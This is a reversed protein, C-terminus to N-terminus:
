SGTSLRAQRLIERLKPRTGTLLLGVRFLRAGFRLALWTSVLLVVYSGAVDLWVGPTPEMTMRFVATVPATFPIWTLIRPLTGNPDTIFIAMFVMPIVTPLSWIMAFQQSERANSGLSGTGLMLSGIFLYGSLFFLLGVAMAAWPMEIGVLELTSAAVLGGFAVM